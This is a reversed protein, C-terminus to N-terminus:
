PFSYHDLTEQQYPIYDLHYKKPGKLELDDLLLYKDLFYICRMIIIEAKFKVEIDNHLRNNEDANENTSQDRGQLNNISNFICDVVNQLLFTYPSL